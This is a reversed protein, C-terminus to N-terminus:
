GAAGGRRAKTQSGARGRGRRIRKRRAQGAHAARNQGVAIHAVFPVLSVGYHIREVLRTGSPYRQFTPPHPTHVANPNHRALRCRGTVAGERLSRRWFYSEFPGM